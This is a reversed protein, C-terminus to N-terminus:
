QVPSTASTDAHLIIPAGLATELIGLTRPRTLVITTANEVSVAEPRIRVLGSAHEAVSSAVQDHPVGSALLLGAPFAAREFAAATALALGADVMALIFLMLAPLVFAAELTTVARPDGQLERIM